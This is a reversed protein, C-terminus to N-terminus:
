FIMKCGHTNTVATRSTFPRRGSFRTRFTRINSVEQRMTTTITTHPPTGFFDKMM